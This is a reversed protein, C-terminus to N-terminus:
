WTFTEDDFKKSGSFRHHRENLHRKCLTRLNSIDYALEPYEKVERIHDVELDTTTVLGEARCWVCEHHDRELAQKRLRQWSRTNYFTRYISGKSTTDIM